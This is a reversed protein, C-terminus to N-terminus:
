KKRKRKRRKARNRRKRNSSASTKKKGLNTFEVLPVPNTEDDFPLHAKEPPVAEMDVIGIVAYQVGEAENVAISVVRSFEERDLVVVPCNGCFHGASNGAMYADYAGKRRTTIVYTHKEQELPMNCDPCSSCGGVENSWYMKRPLSAPFKYKSM